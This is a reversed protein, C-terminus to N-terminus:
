RTICLSSAGSLKPTTETPALDRCVMSCVLTWAAHKYAPALFSARSSAHHFPPPNMGAETTTMKLTDCVRLRSEVTVSSEEDVRSPVVVHVLVCHSPQSEVTVDVCSAIQVTWVCIYM